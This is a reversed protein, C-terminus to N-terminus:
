SIMIIYVDNSVIPKIINTPTPTTTTTATNFSHAPKTDLFTFLSPVSQSKSLLERPPWAEKNKLTHLDDKPSNNANSLHNNLMGNTSHQQQLPSTHNVLTNNKVESQAILQNLISLFEDTSVNTTPEIM